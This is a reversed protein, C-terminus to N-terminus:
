FSLVLPSALYSKCVPIVLAVLSFSDEPMGHSAQRTPQKVRGCWAFQAPRAFGSISPIGGLVRGNLCM